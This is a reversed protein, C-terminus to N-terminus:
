ELYSGEYAPRSMCASMAPGETGVTPLWLYRSIRTSSWEARKLTIYKRFDRVSAGAQTLRNRASNLASSLVRRSVGALIMPVIWVSLAPSNMERSNVSSSALPKTWAVVEGGCTCASLPTASRAMRVVMSSTRELM